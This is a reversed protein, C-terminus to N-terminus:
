HLAARRGRDPTATPTSTATATSTSNPTATSTEPVARGEGSALSFRFTTGKGVASRVDIVGGHAEVISKVIALGLGLGAGKERQKVADGVQYLRDFIRDLHEPPIGEGDDSVSIEVRGGRGRAAALRVHGDDGCYREANSLLNMLVQLIRDRDGWAPPTGPAVRARLHLGREHFRPAFSVLAQRALEKVDFAAFTLQDRTLEYRSFELLEDIFSRLRRGSSSIVRMCDRQRGALEGLKESLLLDTYGLVTVLPTRLEHSVNALFNDKRRDLEKLARVARTLERTRREVESELRQQHERLEGFLRAKELAISAQLAFADIAEPDSRRLKETAVVLLGRIADAYRLPAIIVHRLGLVRELRRVQAESAGGFLQRAAQRARATYVTRGDRLVRGVLPASRPDVHIGGLPRELVHEALRQMPPTFSTFAYHFAPRRAGPVADSTLIASHFGLRILERCIVAHIAPAETEVMLHTGVLNLAALTDKAQQLEAIVHKERTVDREAAQHRAALQRRLGEVELRGSAQRALARYSELAAEDPKGDRVIRLWGVITRATAIPLFVEHPARLGDFHRSLMPDCPAVRHAARRRPEPLDAAAPSRALDRGLDSRRPVGPAAFAASEWRPGGADGRAVLLEVLPAGTIGAADRVIELYAHALTRRARPARSEIRQGMRSITEGAGRTSLGYLRV